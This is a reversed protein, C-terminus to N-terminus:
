ASQLGQNEWAVAMSAGCAAAQAHAMAAMSSCRRRQHINHRGQRRDEQPVDSSAGVRLHGEKLRQGAGEVAGASFKHMCASGTLAPFSATWAACRRTLIGVQRQQYPMMNKPAPKTM